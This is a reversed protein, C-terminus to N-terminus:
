QVECFGYNCHQRSSDTCDHTNVGNDDNLTPDCTGCESPVDSGVEFLWKCECSSPPMYSMLAGVESDRTVRMACQPVISLVAEAKILDFDAPIVAATLYDIFKKVDTNTPDGANNVSTFLHVPGSIAYHGDRTNQMDNSNFQSSPYYAASQGWHQYALPVYDGKAGVTPARIVDMGLIGIAINQHDPNSAASALGSQIFTASATTNTDPNADNSGKFKTTPVRIAAGIMGQTGSNKDRIFIQTEDNWNTDGAMGLGFTLYAAEASIVKQNSMNSVAFAMTQVPGHFDKLGTPLETLQHIVTCTDFFVDSMAVDIPLGDVPTITCTLNATGNEDYVSPSGTMGQSTFVDNQGACSGASKYILSIGEKKLAPGMTIMMNKMASSGEVVVPHPLDGCEAAKANHAWTTTIAVVGLVGLPGLWHLSKTRM